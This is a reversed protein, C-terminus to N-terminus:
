LKPEKARSSKTPKRYKFEIVEGKYFLAIRKRYERCPIRNGLHDIMDHNNIKEPTRDGGCHECHLLIPIGFLSSSKVSSHKRKKSM